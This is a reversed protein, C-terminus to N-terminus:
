EGLLTSSTARDIKTGFFDFWGDIRDIGNTVYSSVGNFAMHTNTPCYVTEGVVANVFQTSGNWAFITGNTVGLSVSAATCNTACIALKDSMNMTMTVLGADPDVYSMTATANTSNITQTIEASYGGNTAVYNRVWQQTAAPSAALASPMEAVECFLITLITALKKM